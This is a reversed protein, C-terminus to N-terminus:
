RHRCRHGANCARLMLGIGRGEHGRMRWCWAAGRVPSWRWRPTWRPGCDCRAHGLCVGTTQIESWCTVTPTPGATIALSQEVDEYITYLRHRSVGMVLRDASPSGSMTSGHKRRWEVTTITILALGHEDAFVQLEDTRAMSGEDKKASSECIAGTAQWGGPDVAAQHGPRRLVGGDKARLLVVHGPRTFRRDSGTPDALLRMTTARDSASYLELAGHM